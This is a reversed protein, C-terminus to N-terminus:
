SNPILKKKTQVIKLYQKLTYGHYTGDNPVIRKHPFFANKDVFYLHKIFRGESVNKSRANFKIEGKAVSRPVLLGPRLSVLRKWCLHFLIGNEIMQQVNRVVISLITNANKVTPFVFEKERQIM